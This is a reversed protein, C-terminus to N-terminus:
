VVSKRDEPIMAPEEEAALVKISWTLEVPEKGDTVLVTVKKRGPTVFIREVTNTGKIRPEQISFSWEYDLRDQDPDKVAIFFIVPEGVITTFEREPLFDILELKRNVNKVNIRVRETIEVLGDSAAFTLEKIEEEQNLAGNITAIKSILNYKLQQSNKIVDYSPTWSFRLQEFM